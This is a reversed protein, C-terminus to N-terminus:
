IKKRILKVILHIKSVDKLGRVNQSKCFIEKLVDHDEVNTNPWLNNCTHNTGKGQNTINIKTM